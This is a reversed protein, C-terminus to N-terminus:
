DAAQRNQDIVDPGYSILGGAAVFFRRGYIAPLKHRAALAIILDRHLTAAAVTTVVLGGNPARAFAAVAREIEGADRMNVPNVEVRLSPAV